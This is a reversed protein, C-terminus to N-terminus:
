RAGTLLERVLRVSDTGEARSVVSAIQELGRAQIREIMARVWAFSEAAAPIKEERYPFIDLTLWGAYGSRLLWYLLELHEAAHLSAFIMDDDWSRSNDNLHVYDLIGHDALLAAAEAMSEGAALSHGVDLLCGTNPIGQLLLITKAASNLFCHGRPERLKYEVLVKVRSTHAACEAVGDRLWKWADHYDAEFPYEFGDQGPWVDVYACGAAAAWDMCKKVEAVAAKRTAADAAALSGRGWKAQTWLDPVIMPIAFGLDKFLKTVTTINSDNIHWNGVLELGDLGEVKRAMALMEDMDKGGRGYGS